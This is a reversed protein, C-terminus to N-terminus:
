ALAALTETGDSHESHARVDGALWRMGDPAPLDHNVAPGTKLTLRPERLDVASDTRVRVEYPLGEDPVRHLGLEVAWAGAPLDGALYGPTARGPGLAIHQRSSGSWGRFGRPDSLGIDLAATATKAYDIEIVLGTADTPLDFPLRRYLAM